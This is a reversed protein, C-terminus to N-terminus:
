ERLVLELDEGGYRFVVAEPLRTGGEGDPGTAVTLEEIWREEELLARGEASGALVKRREGGGTGVERWAVGDFLFERDAVSRRGGDDGVVVISSGGERDFSQAVILTILALALIVALLTWTMSHNLLYRGRQADLKARFGAPEPDLVLQRKIRQHLEPPPSARDLDRLDRVVSELEELRQRAQPSERLSAEVRKASVEDLEQDIYASLLEDTV